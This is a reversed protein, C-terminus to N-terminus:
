QQLLKYQMCIVVCHSCFTHALGSKRPLVSLYRLTKLSIRKCLMKANFSIVICAVGPTINIVLKNWGLMFSPLRIEPHDRM